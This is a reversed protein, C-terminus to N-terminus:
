ARSNVFHTEFENAFVEGPNKTIDSDTIKTFGGYKSRIKTILDFLIKPGDTSNALSHQLVENFWINRTDSEDVLEEHKRHLLRM